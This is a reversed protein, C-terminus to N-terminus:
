ACDHLSLLAPRLVSPRIALFFFARRLEALAIAWTCALKLLVITVMLSRRPSVMAQDLAPLTPKLPDRLDVGKAACFAASFAATFAILIPTFSTSTRTFPGPLPRSDATRARAAAPRVTRAM